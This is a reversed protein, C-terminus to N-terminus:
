GEDWEWPLKRAVLAFKNPRGGHWAALALVFPAKLLRQWMPFVSRCVQRGDIRIPTLKFDFSQRELVAELHLPDIAPEDPCPAVRIPSRPAQTWRVFAYRADPEVIALRGLRKLVRHFEAVVGFWAERPLHHLVDICYVTDFSGAAFPLPMRADAVISPVGRKGALSACRPSIDLAVVLRAGLGAAIAGDGCGVDLLRGKNIVLGDLRELSVSDYRYLVDGSALYDFLRDQRSAEVGGRKLGRIGILFAGWFVANTIAISVGVSAGLVGAPVGAVEFLLGAAVLYPVGTANPTFPFASALAHACQVVALLMFSLTYGFSRYLLMGVVIDLATALFTMASAMPVKAGFGRVETSVDVLLSAVRSLRRFGQRRELRNALFVFLGRRTLIVAPAAVLVILAGAVYVLMNNLRADPMPGVAPMGSKLGFAVIGLAGLGLTAAMELLRDTVIWAGVRATRYERLMLPALEGVRGPSWDGGAKALFYLETAGAGQGLVLRWKVVRVALACAMVGAMALLTSADVSALVPGIRGWGIWWLFVGYVAAGVLWLRRFPLQAVRVTQASQVPEGGRAADIM